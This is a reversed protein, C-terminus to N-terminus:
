KSPNNKESVLAYIGLAIAFFLCTDTFRLMADATLGFLADLKAPNVGNYHSWIRTGAGLILFVAAARLCIRMFLQM